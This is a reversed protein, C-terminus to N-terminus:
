PDLQVELGVYLPHCADGIAQDNCGVSRLPRVPEIGVDHYMAGAAHGLDVIEIQFPTANVIPLSADPHVLVHL